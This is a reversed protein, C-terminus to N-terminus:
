TPQRMILAAQRAREKERILLCLQRLFTFLVFTTFGRYNVCM